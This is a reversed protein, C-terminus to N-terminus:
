QSVIRVNVDTANVDIANNVTNNTTSPTHVVQVPIPETPMVVAEATTIPVYAITRNYIWYCGLPTDIKKGTIFGQSLLKEAVLQFNNSGFGGPCLKPIAMAAIGDDEYVIVENVWSPLTETICYRRAEDPPVLPEAHSEKRKWCIVDHGIYDIKSHYQFGNVLLFLMTKKNTGPFRVRNTYSLSRMYVVDDILFTFIQDSKVFDRLNDTAITSVVPLM